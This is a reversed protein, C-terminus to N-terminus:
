LFLQHTIIYERVTEPVLDRLSRGQRCYARILSSSIGVPPMQLIAWQLPDLHNSFSLTVQQCIQELKSQELRSPELQLLGPEYFSALSNDQIWRPAVLWVCQSALEASDRWGPLNHFADMGILWHWHTNSYLTALQRWTSIAYSVGGQRQELDSAIFAPHDAIALQVMQMRHKFDLLSTPKHPPCFTPVWIVQKLNFQSLATEALLLHGWHVPNFAGGFIGRKEM